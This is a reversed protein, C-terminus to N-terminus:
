AQQALQQEWKPIAVEIKEAPIVETNIAMGAFAELLPMMADISPAEWICVQLWQSRGNYAAIIKGGPVFKSPEANLQKTFELASKLVEPPLPGLPRHLLIFEMINEEDITYGDDLLFISLIKGMQTRVLVFSQSACARFLDGVGIEM